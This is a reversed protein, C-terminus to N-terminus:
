MQLGKPILTGSAFCTLTGKPLQSLQGTAHYRLGLNWYWPRRLPQPYCRMVRSAAPLWCRPAPLGAGPKKPLVGGLFFFFLLPLLDSSDVRVLASLPVTLRASCIMALASSAWWLSSSSLRAAWARPLVLGCPCFFVPFRGLDGSCPGVGSCLLCTKKLDWVRSGSGGRCSTLSLALASSGLCSVCSLSLDTAGSLCCFLAFAWASRSATFVALFLHSPLLNWM